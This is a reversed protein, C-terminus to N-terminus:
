KLRKALAAIHQPTTGCCGGLIKVGASYIKETAALFDDPSVKYVAKGDVLEPQGANLEAFVAVDQSLGAAISVYKQALQIYGELPVSGCNFGVGDVGSQIIKGVSEEPGVGMMTKFEGGALNFAMSAFVPLDCLSKVAEVAILLEDVASMTEIIFGDVGGALLGQAQQVFATKLEEPELLGLPLLFDGSPGINGLVYKDEGAAKRATLAGAKNIQEAKDELGHRALTYKNAGFTNTLVANSGADIYARHVDLVIDTNTINLYDVCKGTKAGRAFLETGMAGDLLFLGERLREQLDKKAM